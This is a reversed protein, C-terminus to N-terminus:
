QYSSTRSLVEGAPPPLVGTRGAGCATGATAPVRGCQDGMHASVVLATTAEDRLPKLGSPTPRPLDLPQTLAAQSPPM